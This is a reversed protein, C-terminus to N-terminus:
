IKEAFYKQNVQFVILGVVFVIIVIFLQLLPYYSFEPNSFSIFLHRVDTIIQALPNFFIINQYQAPILTIPYIIPTLYFIMQLVVEWIHSMDRYKVFLTSLILSSGVALLWLELIYLVVLFTSWHFVDIQFYVMFGALIVFNFFLNILANFSSVLVVIIRPFYIKKILAARGVVSQLGNSTVESYFYFLMIGILLYIPFHEIESDFRLAMGFVVYLVVFLALPKLLSWLYGLVSGAYRLKYDTITLQKIIEWNQRWTNM